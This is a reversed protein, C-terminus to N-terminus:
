YKQLLKIVSYLNVHKNSVNTLVVLVNLFVCFVVFWLFAYIGCGYLKTKQFIFIGNLELDRSNGQYALSVRSVIVITLEAWKEMCDTFCPLAHGLLQFHM